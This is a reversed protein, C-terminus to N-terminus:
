FINARREAERMRHNADRDRPAHHFNSPRFTERRDAV